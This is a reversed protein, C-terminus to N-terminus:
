LKYSENLMFKKRLFKTYYDSQRKKDKIEKLPKPEVWTAEREQKNELLHKPFNDWMDTNAWEGQVSKSSSIVRHQNHKLAKRGFSNNAASIYGLTEACDNNKLPTDKVFGNVYTSSMYPHHGRKM